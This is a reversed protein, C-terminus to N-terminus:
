APIQEVDLPKHIKLREIALEFVFASQEPVLPESSHM